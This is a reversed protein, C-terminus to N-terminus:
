CRPKTARSRCCIYDGGKEVVARAMARPTNLADGTVVQGVLGPSQTVLQQAMRMECREGEGEKQSMIAMSRPVGTDHAALTVVGICDRIMKGDVALAGPLDGAQQQLWANLVLAFADLDLRSLLQYYVSYSPIDRMKRSGKTFPLGLLKRQPQRLRWGFRHFQSLDRQGCMLAMAVIALVPGIRFRVNKSRPDKVTRLVSLLSLMQKQHVPLIGSTAPTEGEEQRAGLTAGCLIAAADPRLRKLWLRKPRDNAVYFDARHRSFGASMGVPEWGSARYCTGEYLEVDTFSEALVPEYGFQEAWQRPLARM